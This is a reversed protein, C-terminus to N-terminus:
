FRRAALSGFLFAAGGLAIALGIGAKVGSVPSSIEDAAEQLALRAADAIRQVRESLVRTVAIGREGALRMWGRLAAAFRRVRDVHEPPIREGWAKVQTWWDETFQAFKERLEIAIQPPKGVVIDAYMLRMAVSIEEIVEALQQRTIAITPAMSPFDVEPM